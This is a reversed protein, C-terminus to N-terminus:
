IRNPVGTMSNGLVSGLGAEGTVQFRHGEPTEIPTFILPGTLSVAALPPPSGPPARATSAM